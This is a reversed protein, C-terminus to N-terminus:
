AVIGGGIVLKGRYFVLPQGTTPAWAADRTTIKYGDGYPEIAVPCQPNLGIGRIKITIDDATLLEEHNVIVCDKVYIDHKYLEEKRGVILRNHEADIAVICREAPIGKGRKQGITYHAIGTHSGVIKGDRDVVDGEASTYGERMMYEAYPKGQLFCIGMSERKDEFVERIERKIADGMPTIIRALTTQPLGWLYYSQDKVADNGMAVYYRDDRQVVNFYHGTAIHKINLKDAVECLIRWKIHTNCRTCPAPTRGNCYETCFYDIIDRRFVSRADYALWTIGLKQASQEAHQMMLSDGITDITLAVVRYGMDLLRVAATCSDMGGSFGLIVSREEM